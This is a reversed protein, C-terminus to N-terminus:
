TPPVRIDDRTDLQRDPGASVVTVDGEACQIHWPEGWADRKRSGRDLAGSKMLEDFEPCDVRDHELWWTRVADRINHANTETTTRQAKGYREFAAVGVGGAILAIIAVVILIEVLTM